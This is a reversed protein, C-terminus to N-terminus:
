HVLCPEAADVEVREPSLLRLQGDPGAALTHVYFHTRADDAPGMVPSPASVIKLDGCAGIWDIHRHGHMVVARLALPKLKRLFWSGNVLATGIRESFEAVPMPYEILHHHLAIIWRAHPYARAAAAFRRAQELSIMGLANTFSFHAEANSNLIAIALGDPKDPPLIMPFQDDFLGRLRAARRVGGNEMFAAIDSRHPTLAENLTRVSQRSGSDVVRVRNGQMAAIASLTRMQRLRKGTSLPLDVRAPNARDVINLDHNGPVVVLRSALVPHRAVTDLFEAWETARGADTLDGCVLVLDLPQARHVAELRTMVQELRGNGRPGGRGSEIRFGYREGVAHLDALHAIRWTCDGSPAPDFAALELPQDMRADAFGWMLTAIATYGAVLVIANALTPIILRHPAILDTVAGMWRSAPWVLAAILIACGCLLIGAAASAAARLRARKVPTSAQGLLREAVHRLTERCFAYAPQVALANLSWFNVEAIRLLPRWAIAALAILFIATIAAGLETLQLVHRSVMTVWATTVLPAFGILLAPLLVLVISAVLFKTLSIEVLLNGAIALLSRRKPSAADDDADGWRPDVLPHLDSHVVEGGPRTVTARLDPSQELIPRGMVRSIGWLM